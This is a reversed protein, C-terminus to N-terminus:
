QELEVRVVRDSTKTVITSLGTSRTIAAADPRENFVGFVASGSGSLMSLMADRSTLEDVVEAIVPHRSAAVREFDNTAIVALSEWTALSDPGIVAAIPAYTGRDGALWTYADATAIAFDPVVLAVHRPDLARLPLLREGRSWALAMPSEIAMFPVDAGLPAALEILRAGLPNPSLADLVRLVAGADASGGGLGAGVPIRKDIEIAFGSPWGTAEVYAVAARYALNRETLGLGPAPMAPGACELSRGASLRVRVEDGLDLRLFVTEISHYGSTERALVRLLLNVKAQAIVRASRTV